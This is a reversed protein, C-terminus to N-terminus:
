CLAPVGYVSLLYGKDSQLMGAGDKDGGCPGSLEGKNEVSM